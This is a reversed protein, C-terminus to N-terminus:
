ARLRRRPLLWLLAYAAYLASPWATLPPLLLLATWLVLLALAVSRRRAARQREAEAEQVGTVDGHQARTSARGGALVADVGGHLLRLLADVAHRLVAVVGAIGLIILLNHM